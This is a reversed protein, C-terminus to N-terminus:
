KRRPSRGKTAAAARELARVDRLDQGRGVARKNAILDDRGIFSVKTHEIVVDVRRSWSKAFQVGPVSQLFDVRAPVRGMWVIEDPRAARLEEVLESPAGFVALATCAREINERDADLWVDLDKTTRPRAHLSVAHGGIVLYRVGHAAFATLMEVLDRPLTM